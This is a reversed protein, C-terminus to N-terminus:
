LLPSYPHNSGRFKGHSLRLFVPQGVPCQPSIVKFVESVMLSWTVASQSVSTTNAEHWDAAPQLWGLIKSCQLSQITEFM